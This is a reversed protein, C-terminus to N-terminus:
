RAYVAALTSEMASRRSARAVGAPQAGIEPDVLRACGGLDFAAAVGPQDILGFRIRELV